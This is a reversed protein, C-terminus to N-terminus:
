KWDKKLVMEEINYGHSFDHLSLHRFMIYVNYPSYQGHRGIREWEKSSLKKLRKVIAKREQVFQHLCKELNEKLLGKGEEEPSPFYPKIVPNANKLMMDLREVFVPQVKALHCAAEYISWTNPEPRKRIINVPAKKVLPIIISPATELLKILINIDEKKIM